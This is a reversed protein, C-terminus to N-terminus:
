YWKQSNRAAKNPGEQGKLLRIRNLANIPVKFVFCMVIMLSFSSLLVGKSGFNEADDM